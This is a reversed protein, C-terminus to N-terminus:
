GSIYSDCMGVGVIDAENQQVRHVKQRMSETIKQAVWSLHGLSAFQLLSLGSASVSLHNPFFTGFGLPLYQLHLLSRSPLIFLTRVRAKKHRLCLM